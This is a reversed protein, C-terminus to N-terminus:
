AMFFGGVYLKPYVEKVWRVEALLPALRGAKIICQEGPKLPKQFALKIGNRSQDFILAPIQPDFAELDGNPDIMATDLDEPPFRMWTRKEQSM